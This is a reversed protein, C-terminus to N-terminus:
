IIIIMSVDMGCENNIKNKIKELQTNNVVIPLKKRKCPAVIEKL